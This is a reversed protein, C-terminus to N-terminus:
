NSQFVRGGSLLLSALAQHAYMGGMLGVGLVWSGLGQVRFWVWRLNGRLPMFSPPRPLHPLLIPAAVLSVQLHAEARFGSASFTHVRCESGQVRFGSGQVSFWCGQVSLQMASREGKSPLFLEIQDCDTRLM